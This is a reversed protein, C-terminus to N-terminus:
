RTAELQAFSDIHDLRVWHPRGPSATPNHRWIWGLADRAYLVGRITRVEVATM